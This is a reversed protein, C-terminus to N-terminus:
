IIFDLKWSVNDEDLQFFFLERYAFYVDWLNIEPYIWLQVYTLYFAAYLLNLKQSSLKSITIKNWLIFGYQM